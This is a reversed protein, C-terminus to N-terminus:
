KDIWDLIERYELPLTFYEKYFYEIRAYPLAELAKLRDDIMRYDHHYFNRVQEQQEKGKKIKKERM